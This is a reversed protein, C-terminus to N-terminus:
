FDSVLKNYFKLESIHLPFGELYMIYRDSDNIGEVDYESYTNCMEVIMCETNKCESDTALEVITSFNDVGDESASGYMAGLKSKYIIEDNKIETSFPLDEILFNEELQKFIFHCQNELIDERNGINFWDPKHYFKLQTKGNEEMFLLYRIVNDSTLYIFKIHISNDNLYFDIIRSAKFKVGALPTGFLKESDFQIKSGKQINDSYSLM